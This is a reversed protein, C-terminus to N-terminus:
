EQWDLGLWEEPFKKANQDFRSHLHRGSPDMLEFEIYYDKHPKGMRLALIKFREGNADRRDCRIIRRFLDLAEQRFAHAYLADAHKNL